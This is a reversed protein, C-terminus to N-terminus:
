LISRLIKVKVVEIFFLYPFLMFFLFNFISICNSTTATSHATTSINPCKMKFLLRDLLIHISYVAAAIGKTKNIIPTKEIM